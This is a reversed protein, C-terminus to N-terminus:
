ILLPLYNGPLHQAAFMWCELAYRDTTMGSTFHSRHLFREDFVLADGAAFEPRCTGVDGAAAQVAAESISAEGLGGDTPLLRGLQMPVVELGPTPRDAGCPSLAIWVNMTRTDSGLFSGDQHWGAIRDEPLSRRLTSKQLSFCPREGFHDGIAEVVGSTRLADLVVATGVPSDALWTGGQSAVVRRQVAAARRHPDVLLPSRFPRYSGDAPLEAGKPADRHPEVRHILDVIVEVQEPSLLGRIVVSGHHQVGGALNAASLNRVSLEPITGVATDPFPDLYHRPWTTSHEAPLGRAAAEARLEILESATTPQPDAGFSRQLRDVADVLEPAPIRRAPTTRRSRPDPEPPVSTAEQRARERTM